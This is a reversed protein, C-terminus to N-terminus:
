QLLLEKASGAKNKVEEVLPKKKKKELEPAIFQQVYYKGNTQGKLDQLMGNERSYSQKSKKRQCFGDRKTKLTLSLLAKEAWDIQTPGKQKTNWSYDPLVKARICKICKLVLM